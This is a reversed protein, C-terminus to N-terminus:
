DRFLLYGISFAVFSNKQDYLANEDDTFKNSIGLSYDLRIEVTRDVIYAASLLGAFNYDNFYKKLNLSEKSQKDEYQAKTLLDYMFGGAIYLKPNIHYKARLPFSIYRAKIADQTTFITEELDQQRVGVGIDIALQNSMKKTFNFQLQSGNLRVNKKPFSQNIGLSATLSRDPQAYLLSSCCLSFLISYLIKM